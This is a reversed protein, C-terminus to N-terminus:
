EKRKFVPVTSCAEGFMITKALPMLLSTLLAYASDPVPQQGCGKIVVRANKYLEPQFEALIKREYLVSELNDPNAYVVDQAFPFLASALLMYAWSPIIADASCYIGVIKDQYQAWNHTQIFKRFDAEKLAIEQYLQHKVDIFVREGPTYFAEPYITLIGSQAVKNVIEDM